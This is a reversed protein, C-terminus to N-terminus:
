AADACNGASVDTLWSCTPIATRWECGGGCDSDAYYGGSNYTVAAQFTGDGNGLLM